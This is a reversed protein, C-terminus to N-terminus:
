VLAWIGESAVDVEKFTVTGKSTMFMEPATPRTRTGKRGEREEGKEKGRQGRVWRGEACIMAPMDASLIPGTLQKVRESKIPPYAQRSEVGKRSADLGQTERWLRTWITMHCNAWVKEAMTAKEASYPNKPDM